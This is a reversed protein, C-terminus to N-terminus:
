DLEGGSVSESSTQLQSINIIDSDL